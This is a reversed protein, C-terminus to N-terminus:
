VGIHVELTEINDAVEPGVHYLWSCLSDQWTRPSGLYDWIMQLHGEDETRFFGPQFKDLIMSSFSIKHCRYFRPFTEARLQRCVTTLARRNHTTMWPPLKPGKDDCEIVGTELESYLVYEFIELRLEPPLKGMLSDDM